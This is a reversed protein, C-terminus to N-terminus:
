KQELGESVLELAQECQNVVSEPMDDDGWNWEMAEELAERLVDIKANKSEDECLLRECECHPCPNKEYTAHIGCDKHAIYKDAM